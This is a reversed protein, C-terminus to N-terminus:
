ASWRNCTEQLYHREVVEDVKTKDSEAKWELLLVDNEFLQTPLTWKAKPVDALLKTFGERVGVKGRLAGAPTIFIADESYDSVIADLDGAGLSEGHHQFIQQPTRPAM